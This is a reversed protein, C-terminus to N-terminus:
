ANSIISSIRTLKLDHKLRSLRVQAGALLQEFATQAAALSNRLAEEAKRRLGSRNRDMVAGLPAGWQRVGLKVNSWWGEVEMWDKSQELGREVVTRLKSEYSKWDAEFKVRQSHCLSTYNAEELSLNGHHTLLELDLEWSQRWVTPKSPHPSLKPLRTSAQSRVLPLQKRAIYGRTFRQITVCQDLEGIYYGLDKYPKWHRTRFHAVLLPYWHKLRAWLYLERAKKTRRAWERKLSLHRRLGAIVGAVAARRRRQRYGKWARAIAKSCHNLRMATAVQQRQKTRFDETLKQKFGREFESVAQEDLPRPKKEGASQVSTGSQKREAAELIRKVEAAYVSASYALCPALVKGVQVNNSSQILKEVEKMGEAVEKSMEASINRLHERTDKPREYATHLKLLRLCHAKM